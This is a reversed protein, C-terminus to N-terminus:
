HEYDRAMFSAAQSSKSQRRIVWFSGLSCIPLSGPLFCGWTVHRAVHGRWCLSNDPQPAGYLPVRGWSGTIVPVPPLQRDLERTPGEGLLCCELCPCTFFTLPERSGRLSWTTGSMDLSPCLLSGYVSGGKAGRAVRAAWCLDSERHEGGRGCLCRHGWGSKEWEELVSWPKSSQDLLGAGDCIFQGSVQKNLEM